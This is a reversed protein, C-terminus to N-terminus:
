GLLRGGLFAAPRQPGFLCGGLPDGQQVGAESSLPAGHFLHGYCWEAWPSLGPLRLRTERLLSARDVTNFANSFDIKLLVQERQGAHRQVWQRAAHVVAEASHRAGVGVQLSGLWAEAPERVDACLCKATLRRLTEGVAIPRVDAGGKPLAHLTAGAFHPAIEPRAEGRILLLVVATLQVDGHASALAERLHDAWLRGLLVEVASPGSPGVWMRLALTLSLQLPPTGWLLWPLDPLRQKRTNAKCVTWWMGATTLSRPRFWPLVHEPSSVMLEWAAAVPM